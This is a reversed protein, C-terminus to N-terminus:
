LLRVDVKKSILVHEKIRFSDKQKGLMRPM